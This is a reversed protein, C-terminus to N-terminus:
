RFSWSWMLLTATIILQKEDVGVQGKPDLVTMQCGSLLAAVFFTM